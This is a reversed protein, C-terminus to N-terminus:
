GGRKRDGEGAFFGGADREEQEDKTIDYGAEEFAERYEPFAEELDAQFVGDVILSPGAEASSTLVAEGPVPFNEPLDPIDAAAPVEETCEALEGGEEGQPAGKV